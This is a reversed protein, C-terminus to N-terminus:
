SVDNVTLKDIDEITPAIAVIDSATRGVRGIGLAQIFKTLTVEKVSAISDIMNQYKKEGFYEKLYAYKRFPHESRRDNDLMYYIEPLSEIIAHGEWELEDINTLRGLTGGKVGKVGIKDFWHVIKKVLQGTCNINDCVIEVKNSDWTVPAGCAPCVTPISIDKDGNEKVKVIQPIIDGKKVIIVKAGIKIADKGILSGFNHLTAKTIMAGDLDVPKLLAVPTLNGTRGVNATIGTLITEAELPPFKVARNAKPKRGGDTTGMKKAKKIDNLKVVVGDIMFPLSARDIGDMYKEVAKAVQEFTLGEKTRKTSDKLTPFGQKILFNNKEVEYDFDMQVVEYAVFELGREKTISPDIQNLSGAAFARPHKYGKGHWNKYFDQRNKFCEGRVEVKGKHPITELVGSVYVANKTVDIGKTGDGRTTARMLKGDDYILSLSLGDIKYQLVFSQSVKYASQIWQKFSSIDLSKNLSGMIIDHDVLTGYVHEVDIGGVEDFFPNNPDISQLYYFEKDYVADTIPSSGDTEYKDACYKLFEIREDISLSEDVEKLKTIDM